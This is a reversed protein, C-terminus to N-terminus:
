KLSALEQKIKRSEMGFWKVQEFINKDKSWLYCKLGTEMVQLYKDRLWLLSTKQEIKEM